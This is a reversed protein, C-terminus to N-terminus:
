EIILNAKAKMLVVEIVVYSNNDRKKYIVALRMRPSAFIYIFNGHFHISELLVSRSFLSCM